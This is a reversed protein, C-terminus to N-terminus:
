DIKDDKKVIEFINYIMGMYFSIWHARNINKLSDFLPHFLFFSLILTWSQIADRKVELIRHRERRQNAYEFLAGLADRKARSIRARKLTANSVAFSVSPFAVGRHHFVDAIIFPWNDTCLNDTMENATALGALKILASEGNWSRRYARQNCIISFRSPKM